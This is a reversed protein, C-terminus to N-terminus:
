HNDFSWRLSVLLQSDKTNTRADTLNRDKVILWATCVNGSDIRHMAQLNIAIVKFRQEFTM